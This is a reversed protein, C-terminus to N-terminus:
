EKERTVGLANGVDRLRGRIGGHAVKEKDLAARALRAALVNMAADFTERRKTQWARHLRGFSAQKDEALIHAVERLLAGEQVWCRAFADLALVKRVEPADALHARWRE